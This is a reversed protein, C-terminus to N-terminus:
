GSFGHLETPPPRPPINPHSGPRPPANATPFPARCRPSAHANSPRPSVSADQQLAAEVQRKMYQMACALFVSLVLLIVIIVTISSSALHSKVPPPKKAVTAEECGKGEFGMDCFCRAQKIDTDYKCHGRGACLERGSM